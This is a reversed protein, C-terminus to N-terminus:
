VEGPEQPLLEDILDERGIRKLGEPLSDLKKRNELWKWIEQCERGSRFLKRDALPIDYYDALDEWEDDMRGCLGIKSRGSYPKADVRTAQERSVSAPVPRSKLLAVLFAASVDAAYEQWGDNKTADAWDCIAKAMLM